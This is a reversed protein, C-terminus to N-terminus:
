AEIVDENCDSLTNEILKANFRFYDLGNQLIPFNDVSVNEMIISWYIMEIYIDDVFYEFYIDYILVDFLFNLLVYIFDEVPNYIGLIMLLDTEYSSVLEHLYDVLPYFLYDAIDILEFNIQGSVEAFTPGAYAVVYELESIADVICTATTSNIELARQQISSSVTNQIDMMETAVFGIRSLVLANYNNTMMRMEERSSDMMKEYQLIVDGLYEQIYEIFEM